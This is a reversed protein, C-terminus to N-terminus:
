FRGTSWFKAASRALSRGASDIKTINEKNVIPNQRTRRVPVTLPNNTRKLVLGSSTCRVQCQVQCQVQCNYRCQVQFLLWTSSTCWHPRQVQVSTSSTWCHAPAKLGQPCPPLWRHHGSWFHDFVVLPRLWSRDEFLCCLGIKWRWRLVGTSRIM